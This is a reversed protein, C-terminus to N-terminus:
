SAEYKESSIKPSFTTESSLGLTKEEINQRERTLANAVEEFTRTPKPTLLSVIFHAAFGPIALIVANNWFEKPFYIKAILTLIPTIILAAMAGQWTGRKWFRGMLIIIALGSMTVPLFGTVFSVITNARLAVSTCLVFACILLIRAAFLPRRPFRGGTVLPYIHRVYFTSIAMANGNACSFIGSAAAIVVFAALWAPLVHMVLWLLAKDSDSDQLTPNLQHAYMGTIGILVSFAIVILGAFVMSWRAGRESQAGFMSMRRGPDAIVSFVLTVVMGGVVWKGFESYSDVGFLSFYSAPVSQQLGALGGNHHLAVVTVCVFGSVLIFAQVFDTYVVSKFGGPIAISAIIIGTIIVCAANSMGTAAALVKSGGIIQATLWCFQSAWLTLNAFEIVARKGEYYSAVEEVITMFQYRRMVAFLLGALATGFGLGIPYASGAWGHQYALGSGGIIVGTGICGATINGTLVWFPLSRGGVLYDAPKKVRFMWYSSVALMLGGYLILGIDIATRTDM